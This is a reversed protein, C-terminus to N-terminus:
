RIAVAQVSNPALTVETSYSPGGTTTLSISSSEISEGKVIKYLTGSAGTIGTNATEVPVNTLTESTSNILVISELTSTFFATVVLGKGAEKPSISAAMRGGDQLGLYKTAGFMQYLFYSPYPKPTSGLPYVCDMNADIEGVLCFYPHATAAFYVMHSVTSPAGEYVANLMGAVQLGNWVPAYTPDNQCCTKIFGWDM